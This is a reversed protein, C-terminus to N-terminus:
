AHAPHGNLTIEKELKRIRVPCVLKKCLHQCVMWSYIFDFRLEAESSFHDCGYTPSISYTEEPIFLESIKVRDM